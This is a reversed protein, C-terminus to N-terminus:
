GARDRVDSPAAQDEPCKALYAAMTARYDSLLGSWRHREADIWNRLVLSGILFAGTAVIRAPIDGFLFIAAMSLVATSVVIRLM